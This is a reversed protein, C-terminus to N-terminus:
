LMRQIMRMTQVMQIHINLGIGVHIIRHKKIREEKWANVDEQGNEPAESETNTYYIKYDTFNKEAKSLLFFIHIYAM